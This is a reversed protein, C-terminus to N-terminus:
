PTSGGSKDDVRYIFQYGFNFRVFEPVVQNIYQDVFIDIDAILTRPVYVIDRPWLYPNPDLGSLIRNMNMQYTRFSGDGQQRLLLVQKPNASPLMGGVQLIAQAATLPGVLPQMSPSKVEGGLYVNHGAAEKLIVSIDPADLLAAYADTIRSDVEEPTLGAVNFDGVLVLSIRGDPRVLAEQNLLPDYYSQIAVSDGVQIRYQEQILPAYLNPAVRANPVPPVQELDLRSCGALLGSLVLWVALRMTM